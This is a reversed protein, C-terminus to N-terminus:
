NVRGVTLKSKSTCNFSTVARDNNIAIHDVFSTIIREMLVHLLEIELGYLTALALTLTLSERPKIVYKSNLM